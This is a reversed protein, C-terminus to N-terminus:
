VLLRELKSGAAIMTENREPGTSVSGVEVGTESELFELYQKARAPLDAIRTIGRTSQKWGPLRAFIPKIAEMGRTSAPMQTMKKGDVEYAVCVPIEDLEDLVDLKTIILSDFGNM